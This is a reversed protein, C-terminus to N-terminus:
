KPRAVYGALRIATDLMMVVRLGLISDDRIGTRSVGEGEELELELEVWEEGAVPLGSDPARSVTISARCFTVSVSLCATSCHMSFNSCIM